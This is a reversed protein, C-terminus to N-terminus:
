ITSGTLTVVRKAAVVDSMIFHSMEIKLSLEMLKIIFVIIFKESYVSILSCVFVHICVYMCVFIYNM